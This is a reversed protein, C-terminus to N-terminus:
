DRRDFGADLAFKHQAITFDEFIYDAKPVSLSAYKQSAM